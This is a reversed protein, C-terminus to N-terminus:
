NNKSAEFIEELRNRLAERRLNKDIIIGEPNILVTAPISNVKYTLAAVSKWGILDSVQIWPLQDQRIAQKWKEASRDLSVGYIEFNKDKYDNYIAVVTPNEERCPKCWSAWFDILVYNGRLSSLSVQSGDPTALNLDPAEKGITIAAFERANQLSEQVYPVDPYKKALGENIELVFDADMNFDLHRTALLAVFSERNQAIFAKLAMQKTRYQTSLDNFRNNWTTNRVEVQELQRLDRNLEAFPTEFDRRYTFLIESDKNGKLVKPSAQPDACDIEVELDQGNMVISAKRQGFFDANCLAPGTAKVKLKYDLKPLDADRNVYTETYQDEDVVMNMELLGKAPNLLHMVLTLSDKDQRGSQAAEGQQEEGSKGECSMLWVGLIVMAVVGCAKQPDNKM